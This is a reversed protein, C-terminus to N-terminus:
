ASITHQVDQNILLIHGPWQFFSVLFILQLLRWKILSPTDRRQAFHIITNMPKALLKKDAVGQHLNMHILQGKRSFNYHPELKYSNDKGKESGGTSIITFIRGVTSVLIPLLNPHYSVTCCQQFKLRYFTTVMKTQLSETM